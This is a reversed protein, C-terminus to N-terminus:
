SSGTVLISRELTSYRMKNWDGKRQSRVDRFKGCDKLSSDFYVQFGAEETFMILQTGFSNSIVIVALTEQKNTVVRHSGCVHIPYDSFPYCYETSYLKKEIIDYRDCTVHATSDPYKFLYERNEKWFNSDSCQRCIESCVNQFEKFCM